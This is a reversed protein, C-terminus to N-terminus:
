FNFRYGLSNLEDYLCVSAYYTFKTNDSILACLGRGVCYDVNAINVAGIPARVSLLVSNHPAIKTPNKCWNQPLPNILGFDANGQLFPMGEGDSNCDDSNPSQGMILSMSYKIKKVEWHSPIEGIWEIGSDKYSSYKNIKEM